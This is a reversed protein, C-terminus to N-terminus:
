IWNIRDYFIGLRVDVYKQLLGRYSRRFDLIICTVNVFYKTYTQFKLKSCLKLIIFTKTGYRHYTISVGKSIKQM